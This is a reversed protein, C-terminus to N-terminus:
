NARELEVDRLPFLGVILRRRRIESVCREADPVHLRDHVSIHTRQV